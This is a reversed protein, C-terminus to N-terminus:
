AAAPEAPEDGNSEAAAEEGDDAAVSTEEPDDYM